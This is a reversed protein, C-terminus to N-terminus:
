FTAPTQVFQHGKGDIPIEGVKSFSSQDVVWIKPDSASSIYLKGKGHITALHYPEPSLRISRRNGSTLEVATLKDDGRIAVYLWKGNDSLDIGHLASGFIISKTVEGSKVDIISVTGGDANNVFLRGGDRSLVFHEPSQGVKTTWTVTQTAVNIANVVNDGANSVYITKNNTSFAVYNPQQGTKVTGIVKFAVLDIISVGDDAPHTVAALQGDLSTAVHHVVGPVDIKRVVKYNSTDIISVTSISQDDETTSGTKPAHHAAHEDETVGSPKSPLKEDREQFSGAILYRGDPTAALGHVAQIKEIKDVIKNSDADVVLIQDASGLPIYVKEHKAAMSANAIFIPLIVASAFLTKPLKIM